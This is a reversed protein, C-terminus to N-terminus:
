VLVHVRHTICVFIREVITDSNVPSVDDVGYGTLYCTSDVVVWESM